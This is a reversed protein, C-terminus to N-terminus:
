RASFSASGERRIGEIVDLDSDDSVLVDVSKSLASAVHVADRPTISFESLLRQASRIVEESASVFRLNPYAALREGVQISDARGLVRRVVWVVEDWTFTSTYATVEAKEIAALVKRSGISDSSREYILPSIFINSDIYVNRASM